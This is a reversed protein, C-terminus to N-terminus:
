IVGAGAAIALLALAGLIRPVTHTRRTLLHLTLVAGIPAAFAYTILFTMFLEKFWIGLLRPPALASLGTSVLPGAVDEGLDAVLFALTFVAGLELYLRVEARDRRRFPALLIATLARILLLPPPGPRNFYYYLRLRHSWRVLARAVPIDNLHHVNGGLMTVGILAVVAFIAEMGGEEHALGGLAAGAVILVLVDGFLRAGRWVRGRATWRRTWEPPERLVDVARPPMFSLELPPEGAARRREQEANHADVMAGIRWADAIWWFFVGGVTILQLIGTGPRELYFRHAGLWGLTAWFLWAFLRRKPRYGYLDGLVEHAFDPDVRLATGSTSMADIM